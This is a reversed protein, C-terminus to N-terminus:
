LRQVIGAITYAIALGLLAAGVYLGVAELLVRHLRAFDIGGGTIGDIVVDTAEGLVRPGLVQLVTTGIAMVAVLALLFREPGLLSSLRRVAPWFNESKEVPQGIPRFGPGARRTEPPIERLEENLDAVTTSEDTGGENETVTM